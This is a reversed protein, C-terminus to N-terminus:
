IDTEKQDVFLALMKERIRNEVSPDFSGPLGFYYASEKAEYGGEKIQRATPVYGIMGNSYALPLIRGDTMQKVYLGYEVVLEADAAVFALGEALKLLNFQISAAPSLREPEEYFLRSWEGLVDERQKYEQLENWCPLHQFPLSVVASKGEFSCPSLLKMPGDLVRLVEEALKGGIDLVDQSTGRFFKGDEILRPRIDGCFGQLFSAIAEGGLSKEVVEMAAGPFESSIRNEGTTTPHCTYHFMIGKTLDEATKFRIVQVESDVPGEPNPAMKMEGDVWKRRHIGINCTGMGKEVTVEELNDVAKEIGEFLKRELFEIYPPSLKGLSLTFRASSQPGSHTHTAHLIIFDEDLGWKEHIRSKISAMRESGWWILDAQVFLARQKQGYSTQQEFFWIKMFLPQVIGESTGKRDAFGALPVPHEPTIDVKATGLHLNM